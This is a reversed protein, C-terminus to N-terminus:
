CRWSNIALQARFWNSFTETTVIAISELVVWYNLTPVIFNVTNFFNDSMKGFTSETCLIAKISTKNVIFGITTEIFKCDCLNWAIGLLFQSYM